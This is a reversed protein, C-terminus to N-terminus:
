FALIRTTCTPFLNAVASITFPPGDDVDDDDDGAEVDVVSDDLSCSV